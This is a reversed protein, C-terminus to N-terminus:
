ITLCRQTPKKKTTTTSNTPKENCWVCLEITDCLPLDNWSKVMNAKSTPKLKESTHASTYFLFHNLSKNLILIQMSNPRCMFAMGEALGLGMCWVAWYWFGFVFFFKKEKMRWGDFLNITWNEICPSRAWTHWIWNVYEGIFFAINFQLLLFEFANTWLSIGCLNRSCLEYIILNSKIKKENTYVINCSYFTYGFIFLLYFSCKAVSTSNM